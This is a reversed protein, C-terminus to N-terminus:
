AGPGSISPPRVFSDFRAVGAAMADQDVGIYYTTMEISEHGYLNRIDVLPVGAQYAIRGFSRRLVHGSLPVPLELRKGLAALEGHAASHGVGYVLGSSSRPRWDELVVRTTPTCPITRPKGGDRGKGLVALTPIGGTLQVDQWRLRLLECERLGNFGQLAVHVRERGRSEDYIEALQDRTVWYRRTPRGRPLRWIPREQAVPSGE